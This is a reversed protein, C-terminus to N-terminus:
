GFRLIFATATIADMKIGYIKRHKKRNEHWIQESVIKCPYGLKCLFTGFEKEINPFKHHKDYYMNSVSYHIDSGMKDAFWIIVEDM